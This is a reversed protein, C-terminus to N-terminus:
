AESQSKIDIKYGTLKAALRANQGEKGIALSLQNDPVVVRCSKGDELMTVDLVESPSLSAAIYDEPTESYKIIDIKEGGLENVISAVRGGKPGVCAGIPDVDPDHSLVAMKTRSGAERAISKIEVIGDYIEPVELEFLRKVLGPHTRSVVVQPGRNDKRVELVYVKIRQSNEYTEGPIMENPTLIGDTKGLEVYANGKEVRQVIATLIENEKEAYEEYINGREAERIRQVVVQKATQAAIRGFKRTDAEEEMVDGVEYLANVKKAAALSIEVTPDTVEEVVTKSAYIHIEGTTGDIEARVNGQSNYNRKYAFILASEVASLLVDKSIGKEKELANLAEIFDANM